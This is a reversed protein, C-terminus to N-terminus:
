SRIHYSSHMCTDHLPVVIEQGTMEIKPLPLFALIPHAEHSM